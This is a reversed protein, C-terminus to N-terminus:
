DTRVHGSTHGAMTGTTFASPPHARTRSSKRPRGERETSRYFGLAPSPEPLADPIGVTLALGPRNNEARPHKSLAGAQDPFWRSGARRSSRSQPRTGAIVRQGDWWRRM